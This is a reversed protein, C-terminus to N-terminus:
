MPDVFKSLNMMIFSFQTGIKLVIKLRNKTDHNEKSSLNNSTHM